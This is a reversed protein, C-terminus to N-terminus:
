GTPTEEPTPEPAPGYGEPPAPAGEGCNEIAYDRGKVAPEYNPVQTLAQEYFWWAACANQNVLQDGNQVLIDAYDGVLTDSYTPRMAVAQEFYHWSKEIDKNRYYYASQYIALFVRAWEMQDAAKKDLPAYNAALDLYYMGETLHNTEEILHVGHYRLGVWLLGDVREPQYGPVEVKLKLLTTIMDIYKKDIFEQKAEALLQEARPADPTPSPVQTATPLPTPTANMAALAQERLQGAGPFNPDNKLISELREVARKYNGDKIDTAALQLQDVNYADIKQQQREAHLKAGAFYGAVSGAAVVLILVGLLIWVLSVRRKRAPTPEVVPTPELNSM